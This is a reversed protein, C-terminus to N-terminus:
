AKGTVKKVVAFGISVVIGVGAIPIVVPLVSGIMGGISTAISTLSTTMASITSDIIGGSEGSGGTEAAFSTIALAGSTVLPLAVVAAKRAKESTNGMLEAITKM